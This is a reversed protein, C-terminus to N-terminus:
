FFNTVGQDHNLITVEKKTKKTFIYDKDQDKDM